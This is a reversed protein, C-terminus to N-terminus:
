RGRRRPKKPREAWESRRNGSEAREEQRRRLKYRIWHRAVQYLTALVLAPIALWVIIKVAGGELDVQLALIMLAAWIGLVANM